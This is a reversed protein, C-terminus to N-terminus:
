YWRMVHSISRWLRYNCITTSNIKCTLNHIWCLDTPMYMVRASM